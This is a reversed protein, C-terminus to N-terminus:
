KKCITNGQQIRRQNNEKIIRSLRLGKHAPRYQAMINLVTKKSIEGAIFDIIKNMDALNYPM